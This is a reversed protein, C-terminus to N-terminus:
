PARSRELLNHFGRFRTPGADIPIRETVHTSHRYLVDAATLRLYTSPTADSPRKNIRAEIVWADSGSIEDLAKVLAPLSDLLSNVGDILLDVGSSTQVCQDLTDSFSGAARAFRSGAHSETVPAKALEDLSGEACHIEAHVSSQGVQGSEIETTATMHM